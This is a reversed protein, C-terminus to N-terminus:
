KQLGKWLIYAVGCIVSGSGLPALIWKVITMIWAIDSENARVRGTVDAISAGQIAFREKDDINHDHMWTKIENLGDMIQEHSQELLALKVDAHGHHIESGLHRADSANHRKDSDDEHDAM